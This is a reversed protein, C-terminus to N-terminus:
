FDQSNKEDTESELQRKPESIMEADIDKFNLEDVQQQLNECQKSKDKLEEELHAVKSQLERVKNHLTSSEAKATSALKIISNLEIEILRQLEVMEEKIENKKNTSEWIELALASKKVNHRFRHLANIVKQLQCQIPLVDRSEEHSM